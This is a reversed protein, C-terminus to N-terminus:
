LRETARHVGAIRSKRSLVGDDNGTRHSGSLRRVPLIYEEFLPSTVARSEHACGRTEKTRDKHQM